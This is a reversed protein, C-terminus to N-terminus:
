SIDLVRLYLVVVCKSVHVSHVVRVFLFLMVVPRPLIEISLQGDVYVIGLM